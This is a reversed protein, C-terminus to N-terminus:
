PLAQDRELGREALSARGFWVTFLGIPLLRSEM